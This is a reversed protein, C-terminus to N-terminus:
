ICAPANPCTETTVACRDPPVEACDEETPVYPSILETSDVPLPALGLIGGSSATDVEFVLDDTDTFGGAGAVATPCSAAIPSAQAFRIIVRVAQLSTDKLTATVTVEQNLGLGTPQSLSVPEWIAGPGPNGTLYFDVRDGLFRANVTATITVKKGKSINGGGFANVTITEVSESDTALGNVGDQCSKNLTNPYNAEKVPSDAAGKWSLLGNTFSGVNPSGITTCTPGVGFCRPAQLTGDFSAIPSFSNTPKQTPDSTPPSSIPKSTPGPPLCKAKDGFKETASAGSFKTEIRDSGYEIVFGCDGDPCNGCCLGDGYSDSIMFEFDGDKVIKDYVTVTEFARGDYSDGQDLLERGPPDCDRYLKWSTDEPHRDFNITIKIQVDQTTPLNTPANTPTGTPKGTPVGTPANTPNNTPSVILMNTPKSTTSAQCEGFYEVISTFPGDEGGRFQLKNDVSVEFYGKPGTNCCIGDGSTDIIAFMYRSKRNPIMQEYTDPTVYIPSTAIIRGEPCIDHLTWRIDRPHDDTKVVVTIAEGVVVDSTPPRPYFPTLKLGTTDINDKTSMRGLLSNPGTDQSTADLIDKIVQILNDATQQALQDVTIGMLARGRTSGESPEDCLEPTCQVAERVGIEVNYKCTGAANANEVKTQFLQQDLSLELLLVNRLQTQLSSQFGESNCDEALLLRRGTTFELDAPVKAEASRTPVPPPAVTPPSTDGEKSPSNTPSDTPSTTPTNTPVMTGSFTPNEYCLISPGGEVVKTGTVMGSGSNPVSVCEGGEPCGSEGFGSLVGYNVLCHCANAELIFDFGVVDSNPLPDCHIRCEDLNTDGNYKIYDYLLDDVNTCQGM